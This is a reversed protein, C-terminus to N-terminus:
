DVPLRHRFKPLSNAMLMKLCKAIGGRAKAM